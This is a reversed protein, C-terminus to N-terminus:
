MEGPSAIGLLDLGNKIVQAVAATLLLRFQSTYTDSVKAASTDSVEGLIRHRNYFTNFRQALEFLFNCILNPSYTQAAEMVVEPFRYIWRLIALEESNALYDTIPLRYDTIKSKELVSHARARTYQLYIGSNGEFSLSEAFDFAMDRLRSVKLISYKVAGVALVEALEDAESTKFKEKGVKKLIEKKALDILEDIYVVNGARSSMKGQGKISMYGYALHICDSFDVIGLQECAAFMQKLALSQEPGIVWHLKDPQFAEKKLKTLALDQTIYLATGDAKIVVTDPINYKALDTVIAGDKGKRFVGKKLGIKVLNKGQQYHEHEHWVKDWKNGLRELTLQQGQYSYDLVRKWLARNKKDQNEWDVVLQKVKKQVEPNKFDVSAKVYLQDVLKDPRLGADKPTQWEDQHGYWYDVDTFTKGERHAFKLYGWMLKAIAIGRNNDICDRTVDVGSFEWINAIAMGTVNNRLHGLHMAKNPNPSTHEILYKKGKGWDSSGYKEKEKDIRRLENSLVAPKLWFNIFGGGAVEIRSVVKKLEKNARLEEVIGGALERPNRVKSKPNQVKFKEFTTLAVNSAYDGHEDVTPHELNVETKGLGLKSLAHGTATKLQDQIMGIM